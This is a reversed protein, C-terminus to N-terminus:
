PINDTLNHSVFVQSGNLMNTDAIVRVSLRYQTTLQVFSHMIKNVLPITYNIPQTGAQPAIVRWFNESNANLVNHDYWIDTYLAKSSFVLYILMTSNAATNDGQFFPLTFNINGSLRIQSTYFPSYTKTKIYETDCVRGTIAADTRFTGSYPSPSRVVQLRSNNSIVPIQSPNAYRSKLNLFPASTLNTLSNANVLIGPENNVVPITILDVNSDANFITVTGTNSSIGPPESIIDTRLLVRNTSYVIDTPTAVNSVSVNYADFVLNSYASSLTIDFPNFKGFEAALYRTGPWTAHLTSPTTVTGSNLILTANQLSDTTVTAYTTTFINKTYTAPSNRSTFHAFWDNYFAANDNEVPDSANASVWTKKGYNKYYVHPSPGPYQYIRKEAGIFNPDKFYDNVGDLSTYDGPYGQLPRPIWNNQPDLDMASTIEYVTKFQKNTQPVTPTFRYLWVRVVSRADTQTVYVPPWTGPVYQSYPVKQKVTEIPKLWQTEGIFEVLDIYREKNGAGTFYIRRPDAESVIPRAANTAANLGIVNYGRDDGIEDIRYIDYVKQQVTQYVGVPSSSFQVAQKPFVFFPNPATTGAWGSGFSYRYVSNVTSVNDTLIIIYRRNTATPDADNLFSFNFTTSSNPKVTLNISRVYTLASGVGTRWEQVEIPYDRNTYFIANDSGITFNAETGKYIPFTNAICRFTGHSPNTPVVTQPGPNAPAPAINNTPTPRDNFVLNNLKFPEGFKTTLSDLYELMAAYGFKSEVYNYFATNSNIFPENLNFEKTFAVRTEWPGDFHDVIDSIASYNTGTVEVLNYNTGDYYKFLTFANVSKPSPYNSSNNYYEADPPEYGRQGPWVLTLDNNNDNNPSSWGISPDRFMNSTPAVSTYNLAFNAPTYTNAAKLLSTIPEVTDLFSRSWTATGLLTAGDFFSVTQTLTTSTTAWVRLVDNTGTTYYIFKAGLENGTRVVHTLTNSTAARNAFYISNGIDGPYSAVLTYTGTSLTTVPVTFTSTGSQNGVFLTSTSGTAQDVAVLTIDNVYQTATTNVTVTFSEEQLTSAPNQAIVIPFEDALVTRVTSTGVQITTGTSGRAYQGATQYGWNARISETNTVFLTATYATSNQTSTTITWVTGTHALATDIMTNQVTFSSSVQGNVFNGSFFSSTTFPLFADRTNLYVPNSVAIGSPPFFPDPSVGLAYGVTQGPYHVARTPTITQFDVLLPIGELIDVGLLNSRTRGYERRGGFEAVFVYSAINFSTTDISFTAQKTASNFLSTGLLVLNVGDQYYFSCPNDTGIDIPIDTTATLVLTDGQVIRPAGTLTLASVVPYIPEFLIDDRPDGIPVGPEWQQIYAINQSYELGSGDLRTWSLNVVTIPVYRDSAPLINGQYMNAPITIIGTSTQTVIGTGEYYGIVTSNSFDPVEARDYNVVDVILTRYELRCTWENTTNGEVSFTLTKQTSPFIYDVDTVAQLSNLYQTNNQLEGAM